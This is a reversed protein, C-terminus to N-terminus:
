KAMDEFWKTIGPAHKAVWAKLADDDTSILLVGTLAIYERPALFALAIIAVGIYFSIETLNKFLWKKM